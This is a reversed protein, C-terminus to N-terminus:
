LVIFLGSSFSLIIITPAVIAKESGSLPNIVLFSPAPPSSLVSAMKFTIPLYNCAVKEGIAIKAFCKATKPLLKETKVGHRSTALKWTKLKLINGVPLISAKKANTLKVSKATMLHAFLFVGNM